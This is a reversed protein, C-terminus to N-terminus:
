PYSEVVRAKAVGLHSALAHLAEIVASEGVGAISHELKVGASSLAEDIAASAKHYGGGAARGEGEGWKEVSRIWALAYITTASASRGRYVRVDIITKALELDIVTYSRIMEKDRIGQANKMGEKPEYGTVIVNM